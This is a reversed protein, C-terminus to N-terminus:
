DIMKSYATLQEETLHTIFYRFDMVEMGYNECATTYCHYAKRYLEM